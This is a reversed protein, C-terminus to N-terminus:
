SAKRKFYTVALELGLRAASETITLGLVEIDGLVGERKEAGSIQAAAWKQVLNLIQTFADSGILIRALTKILFETM